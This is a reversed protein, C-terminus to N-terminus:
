ILNNFYFKTKQIQAYLALLSSDKPYLYVLLYLHSTMFVGAFLLSRGGEGGFKFFDGYNCIEKKSDSKVSLVSSKKIKAKPPSLLYDVTVCPGAHVGSVISKANFALTVNELIFQLGCFWAHGMPFNHVLHYM